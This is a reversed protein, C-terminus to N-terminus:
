PKSGEPQVISVSDLQWEGMRSMSWNAVRPSVAFTVPVYAVPAAWTDKLAAVTARYMDEPSGTPPPVYPLALVGPRAIAALNSADDASPLRIAVLEIDPVTIGQTDPVTRITLGADAANLAIREAVLRAVPDAARYVLTMPPSMGAETRLQRARAVQPRTSFLFSYGTMWNPFLGGAAEGRRQLLINAISERDIALSVADRLRADRVAPNTHSFRVAMLVVPDSRAIRRSGQRVTDEPAVEILDARGLDLDVSQERLGRNFQIDIRDVFPRPHWGDDRAQLVARAGTQWEAVTFPGTGLLADNTRLVIANRALTLQQPLNPAPQDSEVVVEDGVERVTWDPNANRLSAAVVTSTVRSGDSFTVGGRISLRCRRDSEQSWAMALAPQLRGSAELTLLTDFVLPTVQRASDNLPDLSSVQARLEVRLTGGYRPRTAAVAPSVLSLAALSSAALSSLAISRLRSRTMDSWSEM